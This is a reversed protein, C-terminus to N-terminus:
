VQKEHEIIEKTVARSQCKPCRDLEKVQKKPALFAFIGLPFFLCCCCSKNLENTGADWHDVANGFADWSNYHWINGCAKCTVKTERITKPKKVKVKQTKQILEQEKRKKAELIVKAEARKIDAEKKYKKHCVTCLKKGYTTTAFWVEKGCEECILKKGM